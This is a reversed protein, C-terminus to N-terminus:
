RQPATSSQSSSSSPGASKGEQAGIPNASMGSEKAKKAKEICADKASGTQSNCKAIAAQYDADDLTTAGGPATAPPATSTSQAHVGLSMLGISAAVLLHRMTDNM